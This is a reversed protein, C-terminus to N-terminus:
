LVSWLYYLAVASLGLPIMGLIWLIGLVVSVPLELIREYTRELRSKRRASAEWDRRKSIVDPPRRQSFTDVASGDPERLVLLSHNREARYGPALWDLPDGRRTIM